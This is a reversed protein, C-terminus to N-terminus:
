SSYSSSVKRRWCSWDSGDVARVTDQWWAALPEALDDLCSLEKATFRLVNGSQHVEMGHLKVVDAVSAVLDSPDVPEQDVCRSVGFGVVKGQAPRALRFLKRLSKIAARRETPIM